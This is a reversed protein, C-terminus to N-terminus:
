SSRDKNNEWQENNVKIRGNHWLIGSVQIDMAYLAALAGLEALVHISICTIM